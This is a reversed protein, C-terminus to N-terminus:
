RMLSTATSLFYQAQYIDFEDTKPHRMKGEADISLENFEAFFERNDYLVSASLGGAVGLRLKSNLGSDYFESIQRRALDFDMEKSEGGSPDLLVYDVLDSYGQSIKDVLKKPSEDVHKFAGRSIQLVILKSSKKRFNELTRLEPWVINLQFGHLEPGFHSEIDVLQVDLTEKHKTNYHVFNLSYSHNTFIGFADKRRPYRKPFGGIEGNWTKESILLGAMFSHSSDDSFFPEDLVEEIQRKQTFGTVGIYPKNKM